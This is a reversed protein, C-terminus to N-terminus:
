NRLVDGPFPMMPLDPRFKVLRTEFHWADAVRIHESIKQFRFVFEQRLKEPRKTPVMLEEAINGISRAVLTRPTAVGPPDIMRQGITERFVHLQFQLVIQFMAIIRTTTVAM